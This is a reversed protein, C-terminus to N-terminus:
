TRAPVLVRSSFSLLRVLKSGFFVVGVACACLTAIEVTPTADRYFEIAFRSACFLVGQVYFLGNEPLARRRELAVLVILTALAALSSYAQTPHRLLGHDHIAWAVTTAKGFCCGGVLCGLRGIAEGAALAIAFLDGTPREIGLRRKALVVALYGGALGGVITRGVAGAIFVQALGAGVLGGVIAAGALLAIGRTAMGRRRAMFAFAGLGCLYAFAYVGAALAARTTESLSEFM